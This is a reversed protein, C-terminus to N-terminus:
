IHNCSQHHTTAAKFSSNPRASHPKGQGFNASSPGAAMDASAVDAAAATGSTEREDDESDSPVGEDQQGLDTAQVPAQQAGFDGPQM